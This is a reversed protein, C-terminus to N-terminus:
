QNGGFTRAAAVVAQVMQREAPSLLPNWVDFILVVRLEDSDNRAEHEITDDFVFVEGVNWPREEFGVRMRCGEPVILPLHAVLRANTEGNHPPIHTKPALASFMANPCLGGIEAMAVADLARATAPCRDINERVPEGRRWLALTSWRSSHNLERWQNVPEGPNYAIYPAFRDFDREIATVIETRVVDTQSELLPIWPFHEREYFQFEPLRPVHLQNCESHFPKSLGSMISIAERWRGAIPPPLAVQLEAVQQALYRGYSQAHRSAVDQAHELKPRLVEPWQVRPPAVKLANAYTNAAAVLSGYREFWAGKALLGPVFYPDVALAAEIAERAATSDGRQTCAAALTMLVVLDAPAVVRAARLLEDASDLDGRQLAHFGLSFLAQPHRPELKQVERWLEEAEQWRGANALRGAAQALESSPRQNSM